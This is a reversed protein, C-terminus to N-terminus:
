LIDALSKEMRFFFIWAGILLFLIMAISILFYELPFPMGFLSWRIGEIIGSMPNLFLIWRYDQPVSTYSYAIPTAFMGLRIIFPVIHVFDRFRINMASFWVGVAASTLITLLFFAPLWIMGINFPSPFVLFLIATFIITILLDPLAAIVKSLPIIIRPFYIKKIMNQSMILSTNGQSVVNSFYNWCIMGTMSFLIGQIGLTSTKAVKNFILSLIVASLLPEIIAWGFGIVTQAYRVRIDKYALTWLLERYAGIERFSALIDQAKKNKIVTKM